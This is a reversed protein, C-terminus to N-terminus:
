AQLTDSWKETDRKNRRLVLSLATGVELRQQSSQLSRRVWLLCKLLHQSDDETTNSNENDNDSM